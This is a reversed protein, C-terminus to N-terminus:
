WSPDSSMSRDPGCTCCGPPPNMRAGSRPAAPATGAPPGMCGSCSFMSALKRPVGEWDRGKAGPRVLVPRVPKEDLRRAEWRVVDSKSRMCAMVVADEDDASGPADEPPMRCLPWREESGLGPWSGPVGDSWSFTSASILLCCCSLAADEGSSSSCTALWDPASYLADERAPEEARPRWPDAALELTPPPGPRPRSILVLCPLATSGPPPLAARLRSLEPSRCTPASRVPSASLRVELWCLRGVPWGMPLRCDMGLAEVGPAAGAEAAVVGCAAGGGCCCCCGPTPPLVWAASVVCSIACSSADPM